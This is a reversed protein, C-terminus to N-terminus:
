KEGHGGAEEEAPSWLWDLICVGCADEGTMAGSQVKAAFPCKDGPLMGCFGGKRLRDALTGASMLRLEDWNTSKRSM